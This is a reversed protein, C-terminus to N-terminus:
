CSPERARDVLFAGLLDAPQCRVQHHADCLRRLAGRTRAHGFSAASYGCLLRFAHRRALGNWLGELQEACAYDGAGALLDVMEGFIRLPRGREVLSRVLRGVSVDFRVPDLREQWQLGGLTQWADRVILRGSDIAEAVPLGLADLRQQISTWHAATAVILLTDGAHWGAEMYEAVTTALSTKDAFVQADHRSVSTGPPPVVSPDPAM